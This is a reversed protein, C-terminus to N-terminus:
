ACFFSYLAPAFAFRCVFFIRSFRLFISNGRGVVAELVKEALANDLSELIVGAEVVASGNAEDITIINNM